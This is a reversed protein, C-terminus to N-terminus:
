VILLGLSYLTGSVTRSAFSLIDLNMFSFFRQLFCFLHKCDLFMATEKTERTCHKWSRLRVSNLKMSFTLVNSCHMPFTGGEWQCPSYSASGWLSTDKFLEGGQHRPSLSILMLTSQTAALWLWSVCSRHGHIQLWSSVGKMTKGRPPVIWDSSETTETDVLPVFGEEHCCLLSSGFTWWIGEQLIWPPNLYLCQKSAHLM